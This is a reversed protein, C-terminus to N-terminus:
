TRSRNMSAPWGIRVKYLIYPLIWVLAAAGIEDFVTQWGAPLPAYVSSFMLRSTHYFDIFRYALFVTLSNLGIVQFLFAWKRSKWVDIVAHFLAMVLFAM